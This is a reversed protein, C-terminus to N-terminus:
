YKNNTFFFLQMDYKYDKSTEDIVYNNLLYFYIDKFDVFTKM